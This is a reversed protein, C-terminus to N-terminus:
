ARTGRLNEPNIYIDKEAKHIKDLASKIENLKKNYELLKYLTWAWFGILVISLLPFGLIIIIGLLVSIVVFGIYDIIIQNQSKSKDLVKNGTSIIKDKIKKYIMYILLTHIFEKAKLRKITSVGLVALSIYGILYSTQIVSTLLNISIDTVNLISEIAVICFSCMTILIIALIEYPFKDISNLIIGEKKKSHGISWILYIGIIVLFISCIPITEEASPSSDKFLDFILNKIAFSNSYEFATKDLYTYISHAGLTALGDIPLELYKINEHNIASINTYVTGTEFIWYVENTDITKIYSSLDGFQINTYIEGTEDCIIIYKVYSSVLDGSEINNRTYYTNTDIKNYNYITNKNNDINYTEYIIKYLYDYGFNETQIYSKDGDNLYKYEDKISMYIISLGLVGVLIPILIYSIIKLISSKRIKEM